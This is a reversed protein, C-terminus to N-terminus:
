YWHNNFLYQSKLIKQLLRCCYDKHVIIYYAGFLLITATTVGLDLIAAPLALIPPFLLLIAVSLEFLNDSGSSSPGAVDSCMDANSGNVIGVKPFYLGM